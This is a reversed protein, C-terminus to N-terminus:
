EDAADSTYLLCVRRGDDDVALLTARPESAALRIAVAPDEPTAPAGPADPVPVPALAPEPEPQTPIEEGKLEARIVATSFVLDAGQRGTVPADSALVLEIERARESAELFGFTGVSGALKHAERQAMKRATEGYRADRLGALIREMADVRDLVGPLHQEWVANLATRAEEGGTAQSSM